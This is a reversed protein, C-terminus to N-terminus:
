RVARILNDKYYQYSLPITLLVLCGGNDGSGIQLSGRLAFAREKMGTLGFGHVANHELGDGNDEIVVELKDPSATMNIQINSARSHRVANTIAEQVIRYTATSIEPSIDVPMDGGNLVFSIGPHNIRWDSVLDDIADTLGFQDLSAPRLSVLIQRITTHISDASKAIQRSTSVVVPDTCNERRLISVAMSKIATVHQGLEDHLEQALSRHEHEIRTRIAQTLDRNRQLEAKALAEAESAALNVELSDIMSNFGTGVANAEAGRLEPLRFSYDGHGVVKFAATIEDFPRM